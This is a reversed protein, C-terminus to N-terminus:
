AVKKTAETARAFEIKRKLNIVDIYAERLLKYTERDIDPIHSANKLEQYVVEVFNEITKLKENIM